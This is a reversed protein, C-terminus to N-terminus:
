QMKASNHLIGTYNESHMITYLSVYQTLFLKGIAEGTVAEPIGATVPAGTMAATRVTPAAPIIIRMLRIMPIRILLDNWVMIGSVPATMIRVLIIIGSIRINITIRM